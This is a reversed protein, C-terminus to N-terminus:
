RSKVRILCLKARGFGPVNGELQLPLLTEPDRLVEITGEMGLFEFPALPYGSSDVPQPRILLQEATVTDRIRNGDHAYDVVVNRRDRRELTVQYVNNKNFVCLPTSPLQKRSLLLLLAYPDSVTQCRETVAPPYPYFREDDISWDPLPDGAQRPKRRIRYVGSRAYRYVKYNPTKGSKLRSRQLATLDPQLWLEGLWTKTSLFWKLRTDVRLHLLERTTPRLARSRDVLQPLDQHDTITTITAKVVLAPALELTLEHWPPPPLREQAALPLALSALLWIGLRHIFAKM